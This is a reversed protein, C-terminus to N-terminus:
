YDFLPSIKRQWDTFLLSKLIDQKYKLKNEMRHCEFSKFCFASTSYFGLNECQHGERSTIDSKLAPLSLEKYCRSDSQVFVLVAKVRSCIFAVNQSRDGHNSRLHPWLFADEKM